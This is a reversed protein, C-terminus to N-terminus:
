PYTGFKFARVHFKWNAANSSTIYAKGGGSKGLMSIITGWNGFTVRVATSSFSVQVGAPTDETNANNFSGGSKALVWDGASYGTASDNAICELWIVVLDPIDGLDHTGSHGGGQSIDLQGSLYETVQALPGGADKLAGSAEQLVANNLTAPSILPIAAEVAAAATATVYAEMYTLVTSITRFDTGDYVAVVIDNAAIDGSSFETGDANLLNKAGLSNIDVDVADTNANLARMILIMGKAYAVPSVTLSVPYVNAVHTAESFLLASGTFGNIDRQVVEKVKQLHNDLILVQDTAGAPLGTNLESIHNASEVPATM